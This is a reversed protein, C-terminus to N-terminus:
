LWDLDGRLDRAPGLKSRAGKSLIRLLSGMPLNLVGGPKGVRWTPLHTRPRCLQASYTINDRQRMNILSLGMSSRGMHAM